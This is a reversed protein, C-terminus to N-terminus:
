VNTRETYNVSTCWWMVSKIYCDRDNKRDEVNEMLYVSEKLEYNVSMTRRSPGILFRCLLNQFCFSKFLSRSAPWLM